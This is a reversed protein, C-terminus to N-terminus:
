WFHMSIFPMQAGSVRQVVPELAQHGQSETPVEHEKDPEEPIDSAETSLPVRCETADSEMAHFCNLREDAHSITEFTNSFIDPSEMNLNRSLKQCDKASMLSHCM